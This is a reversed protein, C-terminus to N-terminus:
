YDMIKGAKQKNENIRIELNLRLFKVKIPKRSL